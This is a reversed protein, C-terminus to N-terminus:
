DCNTKGVILCHQVKLRELEVIAYVYLGCHACSQKHREDCQTRREQRYDGHKDSCEEGHSCAWGSPQWRLGGVRSITFVVSENYKLYRQLSAM